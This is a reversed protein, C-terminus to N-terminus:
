YKLRAYYTKESVQRAQGLTVVGRSALIPLLKLFIRGTTLADGLASHRHTVTVGLREAIADLSHNSHARHVAASLLMTDLVPQEFRINTKAEKMQLMRMDFAVNHGLLVTDKAFDFFRPLVQEIIPQNELMESRIGHYKVSAWPLSRQPNILQNFSDESLLRANVIRVAGISIIEDGGQPDLGTTETDFVTFTLESLLRDDLAPTQGSQQFLNFDYFEPRADFLVTTHGDAPLIEADEVSPLLLRLGSHGAPLDLHGIWLKAGHAELIEGVTNTLKIDKLRPIDKKWQNLTSQEVPYGPWYLDLYIWGGNLHMDLFAADIGM